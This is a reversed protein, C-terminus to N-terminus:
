IRAGFLPQRIKHRDFETNRKRQFSWSSWWWSYSWSSAVVVVAAPGGGVESATAPPSRGSVPASRSRQIHAPMVTRRVPAKSHHPSGCRGRARPITASLLLFLGVLYGACFRQPLSGHKQGITSTTFVFVSATRM